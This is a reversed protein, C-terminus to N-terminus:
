ASGTRFVAVTGGLPDVAYVKGTTNDAALAGFQRPTGLPAQGLLTSGNAMGIGGPAGGSRQQAVFIRNYNRLVAFKHAQNGVAPSVACVLAQGTVETGVIRDVRAGAGGCNAGGDFYAYAAGAAPNYFVANPGSSTPTVPDDIATTSGDVPNIVMTTAVVKWQGKPNAPDPACRKALLYVLNRGPDVAATGRVSNSLLVDGANTGCSQKTPFQVAVRAEHTQSSIAFLGITSLPATGSGLGLKAFYVAHHVSDFSFDMSNSAGPLGPAPLPISTASSSGTPIYAVTSTSSLGGGIYVDGNEPSVALSTVAATFGSVHTLQNSHATDIIAVGNTGGVYVRGTGADVAIRSPSSVASSVDIPAGTATDTKGDIVTVNNGGTSVVYVRDAKEDVALDAPNAGVPISDAGSETPTSTDTLTFSSAAGHGCKNEDGVQVLNYVPESSLLGDGTLDDATGYRGHKACYAEEATRLTAADASVASKHGKDGIGKVSFVVIAALVGLIVIVVLLEILTFGDQGRARSTFRRQDWTM